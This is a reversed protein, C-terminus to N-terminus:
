KLSSWKEPPLGNSSTTDRNPVTNKVLGTGASRRIRRASFGPPRIVCM